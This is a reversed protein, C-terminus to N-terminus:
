CAFDAGRSIRGSKCFPDLTMVTFTLWGVSEFLYHPVAIKNFAYGEPIQRKKPDSSPRLSSLILHCALNSLEAFKSSIANDM